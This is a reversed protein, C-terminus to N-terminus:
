LIGEYSPTEFYQRLGRSEEKKKDREFKNIYVEKMTSSLSKIIPKCWMEGGTFRYLIPHPTQSTCFELYSDVGWLGKNGFWEYCASHKNIIPTNGYVASELITSNFGVGYSPCVMCDCDRHFALRELETLTPNTSLVINITAQQSLPKISKTLNRCNEIIKSVENNVSSAELGVVLAVDDDATFTHLYAMCTEYFGGKEDITDGIYYFLFRNQLGSEPTRINIEKSEILENINLVPPTTVVKINHQYKNLINSLGNNISNSDVWIEDMLLESILEGYPIDHPITEANFIGIRKTFHGHYIAYPQLLFQILVDYHDLSITESKEIKTTHRKDSSLFIPRSSITHNTQQLARLVSLSKRGLEDTQRYPWVFLINM